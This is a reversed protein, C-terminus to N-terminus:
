YKIPPITKDSLNLFVAALAANSLVKNSSNGFPDSIVSYAGKLLVTVGYERAFRKAAGIRDAQIEATSLGSIRSFELPHPTIVTDGTREKLVNINDAISNIGDADIIIPCDANRIVFETIKRTNESNGM